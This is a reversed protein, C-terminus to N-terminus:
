KIKGRVRNNKMETERINTKNRAGKKEKRKGKRRQQYATGKRM